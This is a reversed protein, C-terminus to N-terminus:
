LDQSKQADQALTRFRFGPEAKLKIGKGALPLNISANGTAGGNDSLFWILTNEFEGAAKLADVLQGIARDMAWIM